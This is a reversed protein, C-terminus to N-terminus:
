RNKLPRAPVGIVTTESPVDEVVVAGAGVVAGKGIKICQKVVAGIGIHVGDDVNVTSALHAGTAIHVHDGIRCDHEIVAATNVIINQGLEADANIVAGASIMVGEGFVASPSIIAKHHIASVPKLKNMLALQFLRQRPKTDGISGLGIFFHSIGRNRLRPLLDDGGLVKIGYIKEGHLKSNIDLLGHLDYQQNALLIEIIVKAHGGAGLGIVKIAL